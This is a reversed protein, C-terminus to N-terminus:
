GELLEEDEYINGIVEVSMDFDGCAASLGNSEIDLPPVFDFAPYNIDCRYQVQRIDYENGYVDIIKVIDGEYIEVGNKDKLGTYQRRAIPKGYGQRFESFDGSGIEELYFVHFLLRGTKNHKWVYDFKFEKM